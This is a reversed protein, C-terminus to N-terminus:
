YGMPTFFQKDFMNFFRDWIFYCGRLNNGYAIDGGLVIIDPTYMSLYSTMDSAISTSGVDGGSIIVLNKEPPTKYM